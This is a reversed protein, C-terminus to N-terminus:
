KRETTITTSTPLILLKTQTKTKPLDLIRSTPTTRMRTITIARAIKITTPLVRVLLLRDAIKTKTQVTATTTLLVVPREPGSCWLTTNDSLPM